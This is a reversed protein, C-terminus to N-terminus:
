NKLTAAVDMRGNMRDDKLRSEDYSKKPLKLDETVERVAFREFTDNMHCGKIFHPVNPLGHKEICKDCYKERMPVMEGCNLCINYSM